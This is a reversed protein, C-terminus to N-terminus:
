IGQYNLGPSLLVLSRISPDESAYRLATNAGISAGIISIKDAPRGKSVLFSKAAAVDRVLGSSDVDDFAPPVSEGHGRFDISLVTYGQRALTKAFFNYDARTRGLMHLLIISNTGNNYFSGAIRVGDTTPLYVTEPEVNTNPQFISICGSLLIIPLLFLVLTMSRKVMIFKQEHKRLHM